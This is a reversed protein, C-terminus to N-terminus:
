SQVVNIINSMNARFLHQDRQITEINSADSKALMDYARKPSLRSFVHPALCRSQLNFRRCLDYQKSRIRVPLFGLCTSYNNDISIFPVDNYAAVVIPHFRDSVIGCSNAIIKYWQFPDLPLRVSDNVPWECEKEPLPLSKVAVGNANSIETFERIWKLSCFREPFTVVFYRSDDKEVQVLTNLISVPDPSIRCRKRTITKFMWKTWLDRVSIYDYTNDVVKAISRKLHRPFTLYMSGTCSGALVATKSPRDLQHTWDLWFPNPFEGEHSGGNKLLRFVADSGTVILDYGAENCFGILEKKNSLTPTLELNREIFALHTDIQGQSVIQSYRDSLERRRYDLVSVEHGQSRLHLFSSWVQLNAGYNPIYHHTIIGVKM